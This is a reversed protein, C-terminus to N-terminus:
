RVNCRPEGIDSLSGVSVDITAFFLTDLIMCYFEFYPDLKESRPDSKLAPLRLTDPSSARGINVECKGSKERPKPPAPWRLSGRCRFLQGDISTVGSLWKM